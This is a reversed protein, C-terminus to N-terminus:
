ARWKPRMAQEIKVGPADRRIKEEVDEWRGQYEPMQQGAHDFVMVM